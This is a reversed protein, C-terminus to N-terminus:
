LLPPPVKLLELVAGDLFVMVGDLPPIDEGLLPLLPNLAGLLLEPPPNLEPPILPPLRPPPPM